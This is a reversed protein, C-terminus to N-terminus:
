APPAASWLLQLAAADLVQHRRRMLMLAADHYTPSHSGVCDEVVLTAYDHWSAHLATSEVCAETAVGTVVVTDIGRGRLILDLPTAHFASLRDKDLVLDGEAPALADVVQHGWSGEISYNAVDDGAWASWRATREASGGLGGRRQTNRLYTVLVGAARAARVLTQLRPVVTTEIASVDQGYRARMGASTTNDNQVDVVLLATRGPDPIVAESPASGVSPSHPKSAM